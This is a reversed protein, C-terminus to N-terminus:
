RKRRAAARAQNEALRAAVFRALFGDPLPQEATFRITGKSTHYEKLEDAFLEHTEPSQGYIACHAKAAGYSLLPGDLKFGPIGYGFAEVADPAAAQVTARVDRLLRQQWEPLAALYAEIREIDGTM